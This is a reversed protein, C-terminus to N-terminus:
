PGKMRCSHKGSPSCPDHIEPLACAPPPLCASPRVRAKVGGNAGGAPRHVALVIGWGWDLPGERVAVLRGPRLFHLCRDPRLLAPLLVAEAARMEQVACAHM